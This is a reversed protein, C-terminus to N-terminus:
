LDRSSRIFDVNKKRQILRMILLVIMGLFFWSMMASAFGHGMFLSALLGGMLMGTFLGRMRSPNARSAAMPAAKRATYARSFVTNSRMSSFGRGGGFRGATAENIFLGTTFLVLLSCLFYHRM